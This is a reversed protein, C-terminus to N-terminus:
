SFPKTTKDWILFGTKHVYCAQEFVLVWLFQLQNVSLRDKILINQLVDGKKWDKACHGRNTSSCHLTFM